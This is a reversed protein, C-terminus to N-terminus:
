DRPVRLVDEELLWNQMEEIKALRLFRKDRGVWPGGDVYTRFWNRPHLSLLHSVTDHMSPHASCANKRLTYNIAMPNCEEGRGERQTHTDM